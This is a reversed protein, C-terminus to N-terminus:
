LNYKERVKILRERIGRPYINGANLCDVFEDYM